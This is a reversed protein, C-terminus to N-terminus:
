LAVCVTELVHVNGVTNYRNIIHNCSSFLLLIGGRRRHSNHNHGMSQRGDPIRILNKDNLLALHHFFSVM